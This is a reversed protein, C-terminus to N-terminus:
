FISFTIYSHSILNSYHTHLMYYYHCYYLLIIIITIIIIIIGNRISSPDIELEFYYKGSWIPVDILITEKSSEDKINFNLLPDLIL